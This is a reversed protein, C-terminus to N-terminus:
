HKPDILQRNIYVNHAVDIQHFLISTSPSLMESQGLFLLSDAELHGHFKRVLQDQASGKLYILLNRCSILDYSQDLAYNFLDKNHFKCTSKIEDNILFAGNVKQFYDDVISPDVEKFAKADYIGAISQEIAVPNLDVGVISVEFALSLESKLENAIIAFTYAEEGSACGAVLIRLTDLNKKALIKQRLQARILAFSSADRFFSSFSVLFLQQIRFIEEIHKALHNLYDEYTEIGLVSMRTDLRRKLTEEKYGSFDIKTVEKILQILSGLPKVINDKLPSSYTPISRNQTPLINNIATSIEEVGLILDVVGAEIASTPMGNFIASNPHQAITIGGKAKISRCGSTGDSGTGSLIVGIGKKQYATAISEFLLNVSPTSLNHALPESLVIQGSQVTGDVGAPILYVHDPRLEENGAVLIVPIKAYRNLLKEMLDSHGDHAMHQAIVYSVHGNPNLRPLLAFLAELGGASAGIGVIYQSV